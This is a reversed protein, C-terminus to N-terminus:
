LVTLQRTSVVAPTRTSIKVDRVELELGNSVRLQYNGDPLESLDMKLRIMTEESGMVYHYCQNGNPDILHVSVDGGLQKNVNVHLKEAKDIYTGIQYYALKTPHDNKGLKKGPDALVSVSVCLMLFLLPKAFANM